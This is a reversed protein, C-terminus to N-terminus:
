KSEVIPAIVAEPVIEPTVIPTIEPIIVEPIVMVPVVAEPIIVPTIVEPTVIPTIEPVVTEPTIVAPLKVITGIGLNILQTIINKRSDTLVIGAKTCLDFANTTADSIISEKTVDSSIKSAYQLSTIVIDSIEQLNTEKNLNLENIVDTTLKFAQLIITLDDNTIINKNKLLKILFAVGIVAIVIIILYMTSYDISM